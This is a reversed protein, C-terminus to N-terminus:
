SMTKMSKTFLNVREMKEKNIDKIVANFFGAIQKGFKENLIPKLALLGVAGVVGISSLVRLFETIPKLDPIKKGEIENFISSFFLGIQKGNKETLIMKIKVYEKLGFSTILKLFESLDKTRNEIKEGKGLVYFPIGSVMEKFFMGIQKGNEASMIKKMRSISVDSDEKIWPYLASLM